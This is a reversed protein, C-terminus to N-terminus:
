IIGIPRNTPAHARNRRVVAEFDVACSSLPLWTKAAGRSFLCGRQALAATTAGIVASARPADGGPTSVRSRGRHLPERARPGGPAGGAHSTRRTRARPARPRSADDPIVAAHPLRPPRQLRQTCSSELAPVFVRERHKVPPQSPARRRRSQGRDAPRASGCGDLHGREVGCLERRHAASRRRGRSVFTRKRGAKRLVQACKGSSRSTPPVETALRKRPIVAELPEIELLENFRPPHQEEVAGSPPPSCGTSRSPSAPPKM